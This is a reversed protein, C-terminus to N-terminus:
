CILGCDQVLSVEGCIKMCLSKGFWDLHKIGWGGLKKPISLSEWSSLHFKRGESYDVWLFHFMKSRISKLISASNKGLVVLVDPHKYFM